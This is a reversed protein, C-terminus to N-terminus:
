RGEGQGWGAPRRNSRASIGLHELLMRQLSADEAKVWVAPEGPRIHRPLLDKISLFAETTGLGDPIRIKTTRQGERGDVGAEHGIEVLTTAM